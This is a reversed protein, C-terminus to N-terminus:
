GANRQLLAALGMDVGNRRAAKCHQSLVTWWNPPTDTATGPETVPDRNGFLTHYYKVVKPAADDSLGKGAQENVDGARGICYGSDSYVYFVSM